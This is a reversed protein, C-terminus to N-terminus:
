CVSKQWFSEDIILADLGAFVEQEHFILDSAFVWVRPQPEHKGPQLRYYGCRDLFICKNKKNRYCCAEQVKAYLKVAKDVYKPRWCM